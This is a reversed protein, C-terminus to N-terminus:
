ARSGVRDFQTRILDVAERRSSVDVQKLIRHVHNRVTFESLSLKAAIEKNTYGQGMLDVLQRQRLTLNSRSNFQQGAIQTCAQSFWRFLSACLKPPCISEGRYTTRIAGILEDASADKLLYGNVGARVAELFQESDDEMGILVTKVKSADGFEASLTSPLYRHNFFDMALVDCEAIKPSPFFAENLGCVAVVQFEARKKLMRSLAERLLRNEILLFVRISTDHTSEPM